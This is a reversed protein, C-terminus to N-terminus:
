FPNNYIHAEALPIFSIGGPAAIRLGHKGDNLPIPMPHLTSRVGLFYIQVKRQYLNFSLKGDAVYFSFICSMPCNGSAM